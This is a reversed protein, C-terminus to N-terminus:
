PENQTLIFDDLWVDGGVSARNYLACNIILQPGTVVASRLSYASIDYETPGFILRAYKATTFDIVLKVTIFFLAKSILTGTDGIEVWDLDPVYIYLKKLVPDVKVRGYYRSVGDCYDIESRYNCDTSLTSFSIEHGIRKSALINISRYLSAYDELIDYTHLKVGQSGSKPSTSDLRVYGNGSFSYTTWRLVGGEFDDLDVVDGRRDFTVISNLRAALEGLDALGAVVEKAAYLGFDPQGHPM